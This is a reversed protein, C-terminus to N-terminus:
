VTYRGRDKLVELSQIERFLLHWVIQYALRTTLWGPSGTAFETVNRLADWKAYVRVWVHVSYKDM